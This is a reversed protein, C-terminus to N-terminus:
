ITRELYEQYASPQAAVSRLSIVFLRISQRIDVMAHLSGRKELAQNMASNFGFYNDSGGINKTSYHCRRTNSSDACM